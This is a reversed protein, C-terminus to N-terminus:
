PSQDQASLQEALMRKFKTQGVVEIHGDAFGVIVFMKDAKSHIVSLRLVGFEEVDFCLDRDTGAIAPMTAILGLLFVSTFTMRAFYGM